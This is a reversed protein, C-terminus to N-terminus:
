LCYWDSALLDTQSPIWPVREFDKVVDGFQNTSGKPSVLYLYPRTMKSNDDPKQLEVWLGKGNWGQRSIKEGDKIMDLADSFNYKVTNGEM